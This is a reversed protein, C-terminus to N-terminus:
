KAIPSTKRSAALWCNATGIMSTSRWKKSSKTLASPHLSCQRWGDFSKASGILCKGGRLRAAYRPQRQRRIRALQAAAIRPNQPRPAHAPLLAPPAPWVERGLPRAALRAGRPSVTISLALSRPLAAHRALAARHTQQDRLRPASASGAVLPDAARRQREEM